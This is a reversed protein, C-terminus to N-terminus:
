KTRIVSLVFTQEREYRFSVVAFMVAVAQIRLMLHSQKKIVLNLTRHWYSDNLNKFLFRVVIKEHPLVNQGLLTQLEKEANIAARDLCQHCRQGLLSSLESATRFVPQELIVKKCTTKKNEDELLSFLRTPLSYFMKLESRSQLQWYDQCM